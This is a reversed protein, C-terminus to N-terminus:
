WWGWQKGAYYGGLIILLLAIGGPWNRYRSGLPTM